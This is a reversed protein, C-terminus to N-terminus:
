LFYKKAFFYFLHVPLVASIIYRDTNVTIGNTKSLRSISDSYTYAVLHFVYNVGTEKDVWIEMVSMGKKHIFKRM